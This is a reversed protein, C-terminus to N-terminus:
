TKFARVAAEMAVVWLSLNSSLQRRTATTEFGARAYLVIAAPNHAPAWL